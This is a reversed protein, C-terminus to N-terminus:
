HLASRGYWGRWPCLHDQYYFHLMHLWLQSKPFVSSYSITPVVCHFSGSKQQSLKNEFALPYINADLLDRHIDNAVGATRCGQLFRFCSIFVFSEHAPSKM